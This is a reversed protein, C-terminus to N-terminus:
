TVARGAEERAQRVTENTQNFLLERRQKEEEASLERRGLDRGVRYGKEVAPRERVTDVWRKLNPFTEWMKEDIMHELWLLVQVWLYHSPRKPANAAVPAVVDM